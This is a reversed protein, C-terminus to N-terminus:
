KQDSADSKQECSDAHNVDVGKQNPSENEDSGSDRKQQFPPIRFTGIEITLIVSQIHRPTYRPFQAIDGLRTARGLSVYTNREQRDRRTGEQLFLHRRALPVKPRKEVNVGKNHQKDKEKQNKDRNHLEKTPGTMM